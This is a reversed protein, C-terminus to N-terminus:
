AAVKARDLKDMLARLDGAPVAKSFLFGQVEGCGEASVREFQEQTEVGEATTAMGLSASLGTVARIIALSSDEDNVNRIFSSDIKIKDFPFSRLYSLSSYGTGFDDMAIKVGFARLRHLVDLTGEHATMLVGETIELELRKPALGSVALATVVADLVKKGKFQAPSLNVAVKIHEPWLVADKCAQRIVWDGLPVIVGIEEALPIFEAPSVLGREPHHWRLLAEFGVISKTKV